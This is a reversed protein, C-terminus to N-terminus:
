IWVRDALSSVSSITRRFTAVRIALQGGQPSGTQFWPNVRIFVSLLFHLFLDLDAYPFSDVDADKKSPLGRKGQKELGHEDTHIRPEM